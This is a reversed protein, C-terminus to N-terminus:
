SERIQYSRISRITPAMPNLAMDLTSYHLIIQEDSFVDKLSVSINISLTEYESIFQLSYLTSQLSDVGLFHRPM